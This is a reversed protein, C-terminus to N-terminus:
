FGVWVSKRPQCFSPFVGFGFVAACGLSTAFQDGLGLKLDSELAEVEATGPASSGSTPWCSTRWPRPARAELAM